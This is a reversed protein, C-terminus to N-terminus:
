EFLDDLAELRIAADDICRQKEAASLKTWQVIEDITRGCGQCIQRDNLSCQRRCPSAPEQGPQSM